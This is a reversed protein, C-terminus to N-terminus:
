TPIEQESRVLQATLNRTTRWDSPTSSAFVPRKGKKTFALHGGRTYSLEWGLEDALTLLERIHKTPRRQGM